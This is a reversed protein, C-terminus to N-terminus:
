KNDKEIGAIEPILSLNVENRDLSYFGSSMIGIVPILFICTGVIDAIGAGSVHNNILGRAPRYGESTVEYRVTRNRPVTVQTPMRHPEGNVTVYANPADCNFSVIETGSRFASCGSFALSLIIILNLIVIFYFKM